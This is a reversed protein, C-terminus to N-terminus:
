HKVYVSLTIVTGMGGATLALTHLENKTTNTSIRKFSIISNSALGDTKRGVRSCARVRGTGESCMFPTKWVTPLGLALALSSPLGLVLALSSPLGLALALSSPLGLAFALTKYSHNQPCAQLTPQDLSSVKLISSVRALKELDGM